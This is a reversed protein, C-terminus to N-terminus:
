TSCTMTSVSAQDTCGSAVITAIDATVVATTGTVGTVALVERVMRDIVACTDAQVTITCETMGAGFTICSTNRSISAVVLDM